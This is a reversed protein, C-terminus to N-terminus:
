GISLSRDEIRKFRHRREAAGAGDRNLTWVCLRHSNWIGDFDRSTATGQDNKRFHRQFVVNSRDESSLSGAKSGLLRQLGHGDGCSSIGDMKQSPMFGFSEVKAIGCMALVEPDCCHAAPKAIHDVTCMVFHKSIILVDYRSIVM